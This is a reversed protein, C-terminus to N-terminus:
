STSYYIIYITSENNAVKKVKNLVRTIFEVDEDHPPVLSKKLDRGYESCDERSGANPNSAPSEHMRRKKAEM